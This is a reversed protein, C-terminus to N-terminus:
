RQRFGASGCPQPVDDDIWGNARLFFADAANLLGRAIVGNVLFLSILGVLTVSLVTSVRPPLFRNLKKSLIM